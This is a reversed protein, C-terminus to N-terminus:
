QLELLCSGDSIKIATNANLTIKVSQGKKLEYSKIINGYTGVISISVVPDGALTGLAQFLTSYAEGEDLLGALGSMSSVYQQYSDDAEICTIKYTGSPVDEGIVYQGEYLTLSKTTTPTNAQVSLKTDTVLLGRKQMEETLEAYLDLLKEDSATAYRNQKEAIATTGFLLCIALLISISKKM